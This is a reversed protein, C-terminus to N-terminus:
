GRSSMIVGSPLALAAQDDRRGRVPLVMSICDM